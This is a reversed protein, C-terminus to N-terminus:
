HWLRGLISVYDSTGGAVQSALNHKNPFALDFHIGFFDLPRPFDTNPTGNENKLLPFFGITLWDHGSAKAIVGFAPSPMGQGDTLFDTSEPFLGRRDRGSQGSIRLHRKKPHDM